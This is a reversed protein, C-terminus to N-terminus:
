QEGVHLAEGGRQPRSNQRNNEINNIKELINNAVGIPDIDQEIVHQKNRNTPIKFPTYGYSNPKEPQQSDTMHVSEEGDTAQTPESTDQSMEQQNQDDDEGTNM